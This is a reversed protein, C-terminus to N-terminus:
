SEELILARNPCNEVCAPITRGECLDCKSSVHGSAVNRDIAGVPCVMICMWCGVCKESDCQVEGAENVYMAGTMCAEICAPEECQKCQVSLTENDKSEIINRAMVYPREKKYAYLVNKSQSHATLCYVECLKCGMCVDPNHIIKRKLLKTM